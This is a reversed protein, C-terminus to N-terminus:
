GGQYVGSGEPADNDRINVGDLNMQGANYIGGGFESASNNQIAGGNMNLVGKNYIAGGRVASNNELVANEINLEGANYIAGGETANGGSITIDKLTLTGNRSWQQNYVVNFVRNQATMNITAGNGIITIDGAVDPLSATLDYQGNEALCIVSYPETQMTSILSATDTPTFDCISRWEYIQNVNEDIVIHEGTATDLMILDALSNNSAFDYPETPSIREKGYFVVARNDPSWVVSASIIDFSAVSRIETNTEMNILMLQNLDDHTSFTFTEREEATTPGTSWLALINASPSWSFKRQINATAGSSPKYYTDTIRDYIITPSIIFGNNNDTCDCFALYRADHSWAVLEESISENRNFRFILDGRLYRKDLHPYQESINEIIQNQATDYIILESGGKCYEPPYEEMSPCMEYLYINPDPSIWVRNELVSFIENEPLSNPLPPLNINPYTYNELRIIAFDDFSFWDEEYPQISILISIKNDEYWAHNCRNFVLGDWTNEAVLKNTQLHFIQIKNGGKEFVSYYRWDSSIATCKDQPLRIPVARDIYHMVYQQQGGMVQRYIIMEDPYIMLRFSQAESISSTLVSLLTLLLIIFIMRMDFEKNSKHNLDLMYREEMAGELKQIM